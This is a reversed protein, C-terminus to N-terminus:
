VNCADFVTGCRGCELRIGYKVHGRMGCKPCCFTRITVRQELLGATLMNFLMGDWWAAMQKRAERRVTALFANSEVWAAPLATPEGQSWWDVAALAASQRAAEHQDFLVTVAGTM